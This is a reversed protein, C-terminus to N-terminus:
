LVPAQKKGVNKRSYSSKLIERLSMENTKVKSSCLRGESVCSAEGIGRKGTMAIGTLMKESIIVWGILYPTKGSKKKEGRTQFLLAM